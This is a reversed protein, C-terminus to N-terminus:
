TRLLLTFPCLYLILLLRYLRNEYLFVTAHLKWAYTHNEQNIAQRSSYHWTSSLLANRGKYKRSAGKKFMKAPLRQSSASAPLSTCGLLHGLQQRVCTPLVRCEDSNEWPVGSNQSVCNARYGLHSRFINWYWSLLWLVNSLFVLIILESVKVLLVLSGKLLSDSVYKMYSVICKCTCICDLFLLM